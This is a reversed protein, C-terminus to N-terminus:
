RTNGRTWMSIWHLLVMMMMMIIDDQEYCCLDMVCREEKSGEPPPLHVLPPANSPSWKWIANRKRNGFNNNKNIWIVSRFIGRRRGHIREVVGTSM